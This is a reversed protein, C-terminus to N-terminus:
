EIYTFMSGIFFLGMTLSGIGIIINRSLIEWFGEGDRSKVIKWTIVASNVFFVNIFVLGIYFNMLFGRLWNERLCPRM